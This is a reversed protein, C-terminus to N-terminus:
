DHHPQLPAVGVMQSRRRNYAMASDFARCLLEVGGFASLGFWFSSVSMVNVVTQWLTTTPEFEVRDEMGNHLLLYIKTQSSNNPTKEVDTITFSETQCDVQVCKSQCAASIPLTWQSVFPEGPFIAISGPLPTGLIRAENRSCQTICADRSLYGSEDYNRCNTNYPSPLATTVTRKFQIAYTQNMAVQLGFRPLRTEGSPWLYVMCGRNQICISNEFAIGVALDREHTFDVALPHGRILLDTEIVQCSRGHMLYKIAHAELNRRTTENHSSGVLEGSSNLFVFHRAKDLFDADRSQLLAGPHLLDDEMGAFGSCIVVDPLTYFKTMVKSERPRAEWFNGM